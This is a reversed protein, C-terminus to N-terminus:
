SIIIKSDVLFEISEVNTVSIKSGKSLYYINSEVLNNKNNINNDDIISFKIKLREIKDYVEDLIERDIM